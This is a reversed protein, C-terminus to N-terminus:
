SSGHFVCHVTLDSQAAISNCLLPVKLFSRRYEGHANVNRLGTILLPLISMVIALWILRVCLRDWDSDKSFRDSHLMVTSYFYLQTQFSVFIAFAKSYFEIEVELDGDEIIAQARYRRHVQRELTLLTKKMSTLEDEFDQGLGAHLRARFEDEDFGAPTHPYTPTHSPPRVSLSSSRPAGAADRNTPSQVGIQPNLAM